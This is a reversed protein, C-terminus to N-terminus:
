HMDFAVLRVSGCCGLFYFNFGNGLFGMAFTFFKGIWLFFRQM